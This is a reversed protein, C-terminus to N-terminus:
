HQQAQSGLLVCRGQAALSSLAVGKDAEEDDYLWEEWTLRDTFLAWAVPAVQARVARMIEFAHEYGPELEQLPPLEETTLAEFTRVSRVQAHKVEIVCHLVLAEEEETEWVGAILTCHEPLTSLFTDLPAKKWGHWSEEAASQELRLAVTLLPRLVERCPSDLVTLEEALVDEEILTKPLYLRVLCAV